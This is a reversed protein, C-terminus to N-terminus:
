LQLVEEEDVEESIRFLDRRVKATYSSYPTSTLDPKQPDITEEDPTDEPPPAGPVNDIPLHILQSLEDIAMSTCRSFDFWSPEPRDWGVPPVIGDPLLGENM